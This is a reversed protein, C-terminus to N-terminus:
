AMVLLDNMDNSTKRMREPTLKAYRESSQISSHALQAKVDYLSHGTSVLATAVSHRATHFCVEHVDSIGAERLVVAYACRPSAIPKGKIKGAFIYPNGEKKSIDNIIDLGLDTLYIMRPKGNKTMPIFLERKDLDLQDWTANLLESCRAGTIYLMAIFGGAAKNPYQRAIHIVRQMEDIDLYRTRINNEKLLKIRMAINREVVELQVAYKGMTKLVALTRNCTAASYTKGTKDLDAMSFQLGQVEVAKLLAYRISGLKPEIYDRFRQVDKDWSKKHKKIFPLYSNWFFESLTPQSKYADKEAKPDIGEAIKAKFKRAIKRATAIDIDKINGMSISKKQSQFSYRLLYRKNGTKGSLCKLGIVETDSFELESSASQADNAPLSKLLANTFKFKKMM